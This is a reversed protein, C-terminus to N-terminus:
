IACPTGISSRVSQLKQISGEQNAGCPHAKGAESNDGRFPPQFWISILAMPQLEARYDLRGFSLSEVAPAVADHIRIM